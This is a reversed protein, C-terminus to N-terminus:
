QRGPVAGGGLVLQEICAREVQVEVRHRVVAMIGLNLAVEDGRAAAGLGTHQGEEGLVGATAGKAVGVGIQALALLGLLDEVEDLEPLPLM